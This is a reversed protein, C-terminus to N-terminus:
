AGTQPKPVYKATAALQQAINKQAPKDPWGNIHAHNANEPLPFAEVKLTQRIAEAATIDARGYPGAAPEKAIADAVNQGHRWLAEDSLGLHRTVSLNLDKPPMFADPRISKDAKLWRHFTIFRALQEDPSVPPQHAAESM